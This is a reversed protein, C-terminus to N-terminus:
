RLSSGSPAAFIYVSGLMVEPSETQPRMEPFPSGHGVTSEVLYAASVVMLRQVGSVVLSVKPDLFM